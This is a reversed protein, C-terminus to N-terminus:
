TTQRAEFKYGLGRVTKIYRPNAPSEEIKQRLHHVHVDVTRTDCSCDLGWNRELLYDRTFVKGPASVLLRLLEFEKLTLELLEGELYAEYKEPNITIPGANVINKVEKQSESHKRRLCAKVRAALERPSFPKSIYDDAGLELGLVKDLLEGKASLIIVPLDGMAEDARLRRCVELGDMGPMMIDLIVLDPREQKALALGATGEVASLVQHGEKELNFKVLEVINIDDEVMLIRAM